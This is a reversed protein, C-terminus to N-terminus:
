AVCYYMRKLINKVRAPQVVTSAILLFTKLYPKRRIVTINSLYQMIHKEFGNMVVVSEQYRNAAQPPERDPSPV